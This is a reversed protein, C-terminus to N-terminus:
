LSGSASPETKRPSIVEMEIRSIDFLLMALMREFILHFSGLRRSPPQPTEPCVFVDAAQFSAVPSEAIRHEGFSM